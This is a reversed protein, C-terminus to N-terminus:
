VSTDWVSGRCSDLTALGLPSRSSSGRSLCRRRVVLVSVVRCPYGRGALTLESHDPDIDLVSVLLLQVRSRPPTSASVSRRDGCLRASVSCPRLPVDCYHFRSKTTFAVCFHVNVGVGHVTANRLAASLRCARRDIVWASVYCHWLHRPIVRRCPESPIRSPFALRRRGRPHRTM